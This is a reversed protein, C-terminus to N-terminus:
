RARFPAVVAQAIAIMAAIPLTTSSAILQSRASVSSRHRAEAPQRERGQRDRERRRSRDDGHSDRVIGDPPQEQHDAQQECDAQEEVLVGSVAQGARAAHGRHGRGGPEDLGTDCGDAPSIPSDSISNGSPRRADGRQRHAATNHQTAATNTDTGLRSSGPAMGAGNAESELGISSSPILPAAIAAPTTPQTSATAPIASPAVESNM